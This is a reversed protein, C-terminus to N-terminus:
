VKIRKRVSHSIVAFDQAIKWKSKLVMWYEVIAKVVAKCISYM